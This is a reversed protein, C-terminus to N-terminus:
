LRTVAVALVDVDRLVGGVICDAGEAGVTWRSTGMRAVSDPELHEHESVTRVDPPSLGYL